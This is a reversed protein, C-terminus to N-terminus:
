QNLLKHKTKRQQLKEWAVKYETKPALTAIKGIIERNYDEWYKRTEEAQQLVKQYEREVETRHTEIYAIALNFQEETIYFYNRILHPAYGAHIYDMLQYLTIRTGAITLGRETRIIGSQENLM